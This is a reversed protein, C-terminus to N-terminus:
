LVDAVKKAVHGKYQKFNGRFLEKLTGAASDYAAKDKWANRPNLVETPVEPCSKPIM